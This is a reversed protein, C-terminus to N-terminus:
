FSKTKLAAMVTYKPHKNGADSQFIFLGVRINSLLAQEQMM